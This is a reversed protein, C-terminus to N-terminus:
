IVKDPYLILSKKYLSFLGMLINFEIEDRNYPNILERQRKFMLMLSLINFGYIFGSKDQYSFFLERPLEVVTEMTNFDCDNNCITRNNVAPGRLRESERVLFGRFVRQIKIANQIQMFYKLLRLTIEPKNGFVPKGYHKLSQKLVILSIREIKSPNLKWESYLFLDVQKNKNMNFAYKSFGSYYVDSNNNSNEIVLTKLVM